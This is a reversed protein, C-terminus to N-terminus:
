AIAEENDSENELKILNREYVKFFPYYMIMNLIILGIILLMAKIDMTSLFAGFLSPMNWSLMNFTKGIIGVDILIYSIIGNVTSTMIFPIFFLPNLMLPVGFIIPESIGFFSPLLGVGGVTKLQKSKSRILLLALALVSGCGGIIVFYVWFPTTFVHPMQEGAMQAAANISLNGDRIPGLIGALAADHIGFFWFVHVVVTIIITFFLSVAASLTPALYTYLFQPFTTGISNFIACVVLCCAMIVASPALSAFTESLSSPVSDPLKIRGFNKKRLAYYVEVVIVGILIAPLLGRGDLYSMELTKGAWGLELPTMMIVFFSFLGVLLPQYPTIKYHKCLFYIIGVCIYLSMAGLTLASVWGFLLSNSDAFARWALLFGNTTGETTPAASLVAVVGGVLTIPLLSIFSDRIAKLHRQTSLRNAIPLIHKEISSSLKEFM